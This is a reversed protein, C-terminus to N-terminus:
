HTLILTHRQTVTNLVQEVAKFAEDELKVAPLGEQEALPAVMQAGSAAVEQLM